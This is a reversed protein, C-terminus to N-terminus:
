AAARQVLAHLVAVSLNEKSVHDGAFARAPLDETALMSCVVIRAQPLLERLEDAVVLGNEGALRVDVLVVDPRGCKALAVADPGNTATGILAVDPTAACVAAAAALFSPHDDVVLIRTTM